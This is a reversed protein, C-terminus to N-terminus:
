KLEELITEYSKLQTKVMLKQLIQYWKFKVTTLGTITERMMYKLFDFEEYSVAIPADNNRACEVILYEYFKKVNSAEAPFQKVQEELLKKFMKKNLKSINASFKRKGKGLKQVLSQMKMMSKSNMMDTQSMNRPDMRQAM